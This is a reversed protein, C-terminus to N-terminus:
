IMKEKQPYDHNIDRYIPRFIYKKTDTLIIHVTNCTLFINVRYWNLACIAFKPVRVFHIKLWFWRCIIYMCIVTVKLHMYWNGCAIYNWVYMYMGLFILISSQVYMYMNHTPVHVHVHLKLILNFYFKLVNIWLLCMVHVKLINKICTCTYNHMQVHVYTSWYCHRGEEWLLCGTGWIWRARGWSQWWPRCWVWTRGLWSICPNCVSHANFIVFPLESAHLWM